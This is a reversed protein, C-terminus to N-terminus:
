EADRFDKHCDACSKNLITFTEKFAADDKKRLADAAKTANAQMDKSYSQWKAVDAAKGSKVEHTDAQAVVALVALVSADRTAEGSDAPAKKTARRLKGHRRNIETMVAGLKALKSWDADAKAGGPKGGQAAKVSELSKKAEDYTKANSLAIAADRVDAATKKWAASGDHEAVAQALVALVGADGSIAKKGQSYSDASALGAEIAAIKAEAEAALENVPAVTGMKVPAGAFLPVLSVVSVSILCLALELRKM